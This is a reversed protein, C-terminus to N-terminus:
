PDEPILGALKAAYREIASSEALLKGDVQATLSSSPRPPPPSPFPLLLDSSPHSLSSSSRLPPSHATCRWTARVGLRGKRWGM